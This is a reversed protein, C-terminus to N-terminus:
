CLEIVHYARRVIIMHLLLLPCPMQLRLRFPLLPGLTDTAVACELVFIGKESFFTGSSATFTLSKFEDQIKVRVICITLIRYLLIPLM